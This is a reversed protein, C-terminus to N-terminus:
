VPKFHSPVENIAFRTRRSADYAARKVRQIIGLPKHANPVNNWPNFSLDECTEFNGARGGQQQIRITALEVPTRMQRESAEQRHKSFPLSLVDGLWAEKEQESWHWIQTSDEIPTDHASVFPQIKLSLCFEGQSLTRNLQTRLFDPDDEFGKRIEAPIKLRDAGPVQYNRGEEWTSWTPWDPDGKKGQCPEILYKVATRTPDSIEGLRSPAMSFWQQYLLNYIISGNVKLALNRELANMGGAFVSLLEDLKKGELVDPDDALFFSNVKAYVLPDDVFFVPFNITLIDLLGKENLDPASVDTLEVDNSLTGSELFKVAM